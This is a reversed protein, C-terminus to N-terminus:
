QLNQPAGLRGGDFDFLYTIPGHSSFDENESPNFFPVAGVSITDFHGSHGLITPHAEPEHEADQLGEGMLRFRTPLAAGEVHDAVRIEIDIEGFFNTTGIEIPRGTRVNNATGEGRVRGYTADYIFIDLDTTAEGVVGNYPNDWWLRYTGGGTIRLRTDVGAGPDFDVFRERGVRTIRTPAEYGADASNGAASLYVAGDNVVDTIALEMVGPQFVPENSFGIDDVIVDSGAARLARVNDAFTSLSVGSAAFQLDAEPAIDHILELMGRGEDTNPINVEDVIVKTKDRPLDNTAFSQGLGDGVANVSDSIVGVTVGSGDLGFDHRVQSTKMVFDAQNNASGAQKTQPRHMPNINAVQPDRALEHLQALPVYAEIVTWQRNRYILEAGADRLRQTLNDLGNRGRVTVGVRDGKILIDDFQAAPEFDGDAGSKQFRRYERYLNILTQGASAMPGNKYDAIDQTTPQFGGPPTVLKYGGGSLMVRRELPEFPNTARDLARAAAAATRRRFQDPQSRRHTM